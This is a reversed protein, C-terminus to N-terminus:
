TSQFESPIHVEREPLKECTLLRLLYGYDYGSHFTVWKVDDNLVIASTILMEAFEMVDIGDKAHRDFNIGSKKLFEISDRAYMDESFHSCEEQLCGERRM